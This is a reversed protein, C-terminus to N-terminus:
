PTENPGHLRNREATLRELRQKVAGVRASLANGITAKADALRKPAGAQDAKAAALAAEAAALDATAKTVATAAAAAAQRAAALENSVLRASEAAARSADALPKDQADAVSAAQLARSCAGCQADLEELTKQRKATAAARETAAASAQRAQTLRQEAAALRKPGDQIAANAAEVQQLAQAVQDSTGSLEELERRAAALDTSLQARQWRMVDARAAELERATTESAAEALAVKQAAAKIQEEAATLAAGAEVGKVAAGAAAKDAAALEGRSASSPRTTLDKERIAAKADELAKHAKIADARAADVAANATDAAALAGAVRARAAALREGLTPPNTDLDGAHKGDTASNVRVEGSFDAGAVLKGEDAFVAHIAVDRMPPLDRVKKGDPGWLRATRDRGATVIRGDPAFDVSLVGSGGHANWSKISEGTNMDWLKVTGDESASALVNADPRFRISTVAAKHGNLVYFENGSGAEWVRLGGARDGSALLVGDPSYAVAEIFDTHQEMTHLARDPANISYVSLVKSAGGLAVFQQDPSIDAALIEDFDDGVNALHRGTVVDYVAARGTEEAVGGAALLLKGSRSFSLSKALGDAYPLVGLLDRTTAHYLLVQHPAAVAILPAWPSAALAGAAGRREGRVVPDLSVGEPMPPPGAPRTAAAGTPKIEMKPAATAMVPASKANELAGGAIWTRILELKNDALKSGGKPMRPEQQHTVVLHLLSGDPDGPAIVKGNSSGAMVGQYSTLDLGATNKDPNNCGTCSATFISRIHEQYTVKAPAADAAQAAAATILMVLLHAVIASRCTM